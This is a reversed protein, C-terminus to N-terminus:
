DDWRQLNLGLDHWMVSLGQEAQPRDPPKERLSGNEGWM